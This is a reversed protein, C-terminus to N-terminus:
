KTNEYKMGFDDNDGFINDHIDVSLDVLQMSLSSNTDMTLQSINYNTEHLLKKHERLHTLRSFSRECMDCQHPRIGSHTMIHAKLKDPRNFEKPCGTLPKFPCKYKKFPEHTLKHRNLKDRRNFAADCLNCQFPKEGTHVIKHMKLYAATKFQKDCYTCVHLITAHTNLHRRLYRECPFVKDCETCPYHHSSISTHHELAALTTYRNMCKSCRYYKQAGNRTQKQYLQQKTQINQDSNTATYLSSQQLSQHHLDQEQQLQHTNTQTLMNHEHQHYGLESLSDFQSSCLHCRYVLENKHNSVHDLFTKLDHGAFTKGCSSVICKFVKERKHVTLHSKLEFYTRGQFNCYSCSYRNDHATVSDVEIPSDNNHNCFGFPILAEGLSTNTNDSLTRAGGDDKSNDDLNYPNPTNQVSISNAVHSLCSASNSRSRMIQGDMGNHTDIVNSASVCNKNNNNNHDHTMQGTNNTVPNITMGEPWVKHAQMHKKVNSKQAFGRGCVICQFPKEGTHCRMHQQLDFNKCFTRQCFPCELRTPREKTSKNFQHSIQAVPNSQQKNYKTTTTTNNSIKANTANKAISLDAPAQSDDNPNFEIIINNNNDDSDNSASPAATNALAISNIVDINHTSGAVQITTPLPPSTIDTINVKNSDDHQQHHHQQQQQQPQHHHQQQQQLPHNISNVGNNYNNSIRANPSSSLVQDMEFFTQQWEDELSLQDTLLGTAHVAQLEKFIYESPTVDAM